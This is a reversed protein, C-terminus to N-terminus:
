ESVLRPLELGGFSGLGGLVRLTSLSGRYPLMEIGQRICISACLNPMFRM